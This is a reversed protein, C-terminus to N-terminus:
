VRLHSICVVTVSVPEDLTNFPRDEDDEPAGPVTIDGELSLDSPTFGSGQFCTHFRMILTLSNYYNIEDCNSM